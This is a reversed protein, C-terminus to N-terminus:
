DIVPVEEYEYVYENPKHRVFVTEYTIEPAAIGRVEHFTQWKDVLQKRVYEMLEDITIKNPGYVYSRFEISSRLPGSIDEAFAEYEAIARKQENNLRDVEQQAREATFAVGVNTTSAEEYRGWTETIVYLKEM